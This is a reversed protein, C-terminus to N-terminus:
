WEWAGHDILRRGVDAGSGTDLEDALEDLRATVPDEGQADLFEQIARAYLQSRNLGLRSATEDAREFLDDPVSVAVKMAVLIVPLVSVRYSRPATTEPHAAPQRGLSDLDRRYSKNAALEQQTSTGEILHQTVVDGLAHLVRPTGHGRRDVAPRGAM